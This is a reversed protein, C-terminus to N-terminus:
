EIAEMAGLDEAFKVEKVSVISDLYLFSILLFGGKLGAIAVILEQNHWHAQSISWCGELAINVVGQSTINVIETNDIQVIDQDIRPTLFLMNLM